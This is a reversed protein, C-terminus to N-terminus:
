APWSASSKSIACSIECVVIDIPNSESIMVNENIRSHRDALPVSLHVLANVLV